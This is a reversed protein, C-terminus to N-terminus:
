ATVKYIEEKPHITVIKEEGTKSNVISLRGGVNLKKAFYTPVDFYVMITDHFNAALEEETKGTVYFEPLNEVEIWHVKNQEDYYKKFDIQEPIESFDIEPKRKLFGYIFNQWLTIGLNYVLM